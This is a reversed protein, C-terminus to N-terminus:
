HLFYGAYVGLRQELHGLLLVLQVADMVLQVLEGLRHLAVAIKLDEKEAGVEGRGLLALPDLAGHAAGVGFEQVEELQQISFCRMGTIKRM